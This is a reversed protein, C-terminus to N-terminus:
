SGRRVTDLLCVSLGSRHRIVVAIKANVMLDSKFITPCSVTVDIHMESLEIALAESLSVVGAKAVGYPALDPVGLLGAASAINAM